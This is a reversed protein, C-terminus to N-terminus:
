YDFGCVVTGDRHVTVKMDAFVEFLQKLQEDDLMFDYLEEISNPVCWKDDADYINEEVITDKYTYSIHMDSICNGNNYYKPKMDTHFWWFVTKLSRKARFIPTLYHFFLQKYTDRIQENVEKKIDFLTKLHEEYTQM